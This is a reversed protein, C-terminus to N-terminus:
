LIHIHLNEKKKKNNVTDRVHYKSVNNENLFLNFYGDEDEQKIITFMKLPFVKLNNAIHLIIDFFKTQNRTKTQYIFVYKLLIFRSKIIAHKM